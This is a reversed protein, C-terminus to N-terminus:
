GAFFTTRVFDSLKMLTTAFEEFKDLPLSNAGDSKAKEPNPHTEVFIGNVGAAVAARALVPIMTVDGSSKDGAGAPEQVSHGADYIVPQGLRQMIAVGRFDTVLNKYGFSTGRDAFVVQENGSSAIKNYVHKMDEPALFQGKKVNVPKGTKGAEVLLDTQRCLFAPIQLMDVVEAVQEVHSVEHIDTLVPIDLKWRIEKLVKLGREIGIGRFNGISSRNAKDFSAKFVFPIQNRYAIEKLERAIEFTSEESEIVCPGAIFVIPNENGITINDVNIENTRLPASFTDIQM